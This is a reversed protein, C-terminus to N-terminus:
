PTHGRCAGLARVVNRVVPPIAQSLYVAHHPSLPRRELPQAIQTSHRADITSAYKWWMDHVKIVAVRRLLAEAQSGLVDQQLVALKEFRLDGLTVHDARIAMPNSRRHLVRVPDELETELRTAHRGRCRRHLALALLPMPTASFLHIHQNAKALQRASIATARKRHAGHFKVVPVARLLASEDRLHGPADGDLGQEFLDRLAIDNTRVAMAISTITAPERARSYSLQFLM